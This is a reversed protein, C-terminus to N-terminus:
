VNIKKELATQVAPDDHLVRVVNGCMAVTIDGINTHICAVGRNALADALSAGGRTDVSFTLKYSVLANFVAYAVNHHNM